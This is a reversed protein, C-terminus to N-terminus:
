RFARMAGRLPELTASRIGARSAVSLQEYAETLLEEARGPDAEVLDIGPGTVEDLNARIVELAHQGTDISSIAQTGTGGPAFAWVGLGLGAFVVLFALLAVAARRQPM